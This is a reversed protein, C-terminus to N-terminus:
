NLFSECYFSHTTVVLTTRYLIFTIRSHYESGSMILLNVWTNKRGFCTPVSVVSNVIFVLDDVAECKSCMQQACILNSIHQFSGDHNQFDQTFETNFFVYVFRDTLNMTKLPTVYCFLGSLLMKNCYNCFRKFCEHKSNCTVTFSCKPMSTEVSLSAQRERQSDFSESFM